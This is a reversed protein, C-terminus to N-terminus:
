PKPKRIYKCYVDVGIGGKEGTCLGAASLRQQYITFQLQKPHNYEKYLKKVNAGTSNM